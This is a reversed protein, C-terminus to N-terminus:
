LFPFRSLKKAIDSAREQGEENLKSLEYTFSRGAKEFTGVGNEVSILRAVMQKGEKNIWEQESGWLPRAVTLMPIEKAAIGIDFTYDKVKYAKTEIEAGEKKSVSAPLDSILVLGSTPIVIGNEAPLNSERKPIDIQIVVGEEVVHFVTGKILYAGFMANELGEAFRLKIASVQGPSLSEWPLVVYERAKTKFFVGDPGVEVMEADEYTKGDVTITEGAM